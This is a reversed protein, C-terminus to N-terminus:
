MLSHILERLRSYVQLRNASSCLDRMSIRHSIINCRALLADKHIDRVCAVRGHHSSGDVEVAIITMNGLVVLLDVRHSPGPAYTGSASRRMFGIPFEPLMCADPCIAYVIEAVCRCIEDHQTNKCGPGHLPCGRPQGRGPKWKGLYCVKGDVCGDASLAPVVGVRKPVVRGSLVQKLREAQM